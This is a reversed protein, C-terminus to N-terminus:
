RGARAPQELFSALLPSQFQLGSVASAARDHREAAIAINALEKGDELNLVFPKESYVHKGADLVKRSVEFHTAPITLNM